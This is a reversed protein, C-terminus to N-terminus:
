LKRRYYMCVMLQFLMAPIPYILWDISRNILCILSCKAFYFYTTVSHIIAQTPNTTLLSSFFPPKTTYNPPLPLSLSHTPLSRSPLCRQERRPMPPCAERRSVQSHPHSHVLIQLWLHLLSSSCCAACLCISAQVIGSLGAALLWPSLHSVSVTM